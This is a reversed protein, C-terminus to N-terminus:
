RWVILLLPLSVMMLPLLRSHLLSEPGRTDDIGTGSGPSVRQYIRCSVVVM